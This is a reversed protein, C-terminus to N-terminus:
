YSPGGCPLQSDNQREYWTNVRVPQQDPEKEKRMRKCTYPTSSRDSEVMTAGSAKVYHTLYTEGDARSWYTEAEEKLITSDGRGVYCTSGRHFTELSINPTPRYNAVHRVKGTRTRFYLRDKRWYAAAKMAVEGESSKQKTSGLFINQVSTASRDKKWSSVTTEPSRSTSSTMFIGARGTPDGCETCFEQRDLM